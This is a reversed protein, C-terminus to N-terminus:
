QKSTGGVKYIEAPIADSGPAKSENVFARYLRHKEDPLAQTETNNQDNWDQHKRVSPGLHEISTSCLVDRVACRNGEINSTALNLKELKDEQDKVCIQRTPDHQLKDVNFRKTPKKGQPYRKHQISITLKSVILRNDTWCYVSRMANTVRVDQRDKRRPIDFDILYCHRSLPHM